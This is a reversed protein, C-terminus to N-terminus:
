NPLLSSKANNSQKSAYPLARSNLGWARGAREKRREREEKVLKTIRTPICEKKM